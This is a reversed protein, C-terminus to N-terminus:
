PHDLTPSRKRAFAGRLQPSFTVGMELMVSEPM